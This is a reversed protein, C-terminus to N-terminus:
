SPRSSKECVRLTLRGDDVGCSCLLCSLGVVPKALFGLAVPITLHVNDIIVHQYVRYLTARQIDNSNSVYRRGM